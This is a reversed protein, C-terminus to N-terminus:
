LGAKREIESQSIPTMIIGRGYKLGWRSRFRKGWNRITSEGSRPSVNWQGVAEAVLPGLTMVEAVRQQMQAYMDKTWPYIGKDNAAVIWDFVRLEALFLAADRLCTPILTAPVRSLLDSLSTIRYSVLRARIKDGDMNGGAGRRGDANVAYMKCYVDAAASSMNNLACLFYAVVCDKRTLGARVKDETYRQRKRALRLSSATRAQAARQEAIEQELRTVPDLVHLLSAHIRKAPM